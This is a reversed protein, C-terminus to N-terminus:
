RELLTQTISTSDSSIARLSVVHTTVVNKEKPSFKIANSVLNDFVERIRPLDILLELQPDIQNHLQIKKNYAKSINLDIVEAILDYISYTDKQLEFTGSDLMEVDLLSKIIDITNKSSSHIDKLFEIRNTDNFDYEPNEGYSKLIMDALGM